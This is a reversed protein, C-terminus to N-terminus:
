PFSFRKISKLNKKTIIRLIIKVGIIWIFIKALCRRVKFFQKLIKNFEVGSDVKRLKIYSYNLFKLSVTEMMDDLGGQEM